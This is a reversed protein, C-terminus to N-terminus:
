PKFASLEVGALPRFHKINSTALSVGCEVATAAVLADALMLGDKLFHQEMYFVARHSINENIPILQFGQRAVFARLAALERKDRAGQVLEMWSVHSLLRRRERDIFHSAKVNGRLFWILIDTDFLM